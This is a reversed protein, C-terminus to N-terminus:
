SNTSRIPSWSWFIARLDLLDFFSPPPAALARGRLVRSRSPRSADRDDRRPGLLRAVHAVLEGRAAVREGGRPRELPGRESSARSVRSSYRSSTSASAACLADSAAAIRLACARRRARRAGARGGGGPEDPGHVPGDHAAEPHAPAAHVLADVDGRRGPRRDPCGRRAGDDVRAPEAAVPVEDDDVVPVAERRRVGM